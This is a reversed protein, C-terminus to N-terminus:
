NQGVFLMICGKETDGLFPVETAPQGISWCGVFGALSHSFHALHSTLSTSYTELGMELM